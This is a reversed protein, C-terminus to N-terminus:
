KWFGRNKVRVDIYAPKISKEDIYKIMSKIDTVQSKIDRDIQVKIYFDRESLMVEVYRAASLPITVQKVKGIGEKEIRAITKGIFEMTRSSVGSISASNNQDVIKIDPEDFFNDEFVVGSSDVYSYNNGVQWVAVPQRLSILVKSGGFVGGKISIKSIEPFNDKASSLLEDENMLLLFRESPHSSLYQNTFEIYEADYKVDVGNQSYEVSSVSAAFQTFLILIFGIVLVIILIFTKKRHKKSAKQKEITRKNAIENAILDESPDYSNVARNHVYNTNDEYNIRARRRVNKNRIKAM